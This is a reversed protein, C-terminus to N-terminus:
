VLLVKREANNRGYKKGKDFGRWIELLDVYMGGINSVTKNQGLRIYIYEEICQPSVAGEAALATMAFSIDHVNEVEARLMEKAFRKVVIPNLSSGGPVSFPAYVTEITDYQTSYDEFNEHTDRLKAGEQFHFRCLEMERIPDVKTEDLFVRTNGVVQTTDKEETLFQVKLYKKRNDAVCELHYPEQLFYLKGMRYIVGPHITLRNEEWSLNCGALVGDGYNSFYMQLFDQSNDRLLDLMETRLLHKKEFQPYRYNFM